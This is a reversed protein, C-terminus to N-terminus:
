ISSAHSSATSRGHNGGRRLSPGPRPAAGKFPRQRQSVPAKSLGNDSEMYFVHFRHLDGVSREHVVYLDTFNEQGAVIVGLITAFLLHTCFEPRRQLPRHLEHREAPIQHSGIVASDIRLCRGSHTTHKQRCEGIEHQGEIQHRIHEDHDAKGIVDRYQRRRQSQYLAM